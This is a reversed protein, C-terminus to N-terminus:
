TTSSLVVGFWVLIALWSLTDVISSWFPFRMEEWCHAESQIVPSLPFLLWFDQNIKLIRYFLQEGKASQTEWYQPLGPDVDTNQGEAKSNLVGLGWPGCDEQSNGYM